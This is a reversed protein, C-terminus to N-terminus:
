KETYVKAAGACLTANGDVKKVRVDDMHISSSSTPVSVASRDNMRETTCQTFNLMSCCLLGHIINLCRTLSEVCCVVVCSATWHLDLVDVSLGVYMGDETGKMTVTPPFQYLQHPFSLLLTLVKKQKVICYLATCYQTHSSRRTTCAPRVQLLVASLRLRISPFFIKSYM